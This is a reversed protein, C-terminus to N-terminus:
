FLENQLIKFHANWFREEAKQNRPNAMHRCLLRVLEADVGETQLRKKEAAIRRYEKRIRARDFSRSFRLLFYHNRITSTWDPYRYIM